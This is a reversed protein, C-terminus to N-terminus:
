LSNLAYYMAGVAQGFQAVTVEPTKALSRMLPTKALGEDSPILRLEPAYATFGEELLAFVGPRKVFRGFLFRANTEPHTLYVMERSMVALNKGIERFVECAAPDGEEAARMLSELCPKRLDQPESAIRLLDGDLVAFGDLLRPELKWALRYAAAQGMYRRAGALGSNENRTSRLDEPPFARSPFSGLDLIMDYMELPLPPIEGEATLVGTGLDTGLSHAVVGGCLSEADESHALEVAATFAAMSGDNIIHVRGGERCLGRLMDGLAGLKAFAAEYDVATNKRMGDTKPTEGGLIRDRIVIDPFSLGVGDLVNVESGLFDEVAEVAARIKSLPADKELAETLAASFEVPLLAREAAVCARMLRTLLLIPGIIEGATAYAAPNWDYEKTCVLRDGDSAALKIDTGGVDIGCLRLSSADKCRARLKEDLPAATEKAPEEPLPSYDAINELVFRFAPGGYSRAIRGAISVVKGYGQRASVNVQFVTDLASGLALLEMDATDFFLRLERGSNAALCNYVCAYFFEACFRREEDKEWKPVACPFDRKTGDHLTLRLIVPRATPDNLFVERLEPLWLPRDARAKDLLESLM